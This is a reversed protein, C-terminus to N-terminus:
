TMRSRFRLLVALIIVQVVLGPLVSAGFRGILIPYVVYALAILFGYVVFSWKRMQWFGVAMAIGMIYWVVTAIPATSHYQSLTDTAFALFLTAAIGIAILVVFATVCGPRQGKTENPETGSVEENAM